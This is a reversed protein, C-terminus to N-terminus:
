TDSLRSDFASGHLRLYVLSGFWCLLPPPSRSLLLSFLLSPIFLMRAVFSCSHLSCHLLHVSGFIRFYEFLNLPLLSVPISPVFLAELDSDCHMM